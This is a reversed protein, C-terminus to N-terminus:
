VLEQMVCLKVQCCGTKTVIEHSVPTQVDMLALSNTLAYM